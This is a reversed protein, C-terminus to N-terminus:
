FGIELGFYIEREPALSFDDIGLLLHIYKTATYRTWFRFHPRPNRNFDFGELSIKLRDKALYCDIGAGVVSEMIGARPSISGWRIGGQASYTLQDIWPDYIIQTLLYKTRTPWIGLTFYGKLLNSEGYYEARVGASFRLNSFPHIVKEFEAVAGEAREYLEPEQILKGLTGEGKNIKELSENLLRLSKEINDILEKISKLNIRVNERNEEVTNKLLLILEDLSQSVEDVRQEFKKVAESSGQLGQQLSEKNVEFFEKLDESFSSLNNLTDRLNARTEEGGFMESFVRGVERFEEGVTLLMTGMQDFSVPPIGGLIEDPQYFGPGEGPLVEIHKEGLIGISALTAKSGQPVEIGSDISLIVNARSEKLRIDKVYGIKVGAMRVVARKELGGASDFVVNLLYGPKRFLVSFDGVVFIFAALMFIAITMFIGIKIERKM